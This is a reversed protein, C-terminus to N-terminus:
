ARLWPVRADSSVNASVLGHQATVKATTHGTVASGVRRAEVLAVRAGNEALRLATLTGCLGAGIVVVDAGVIGRLPPYPDRERDALWTSGAAGAVGPRDYLYERQM